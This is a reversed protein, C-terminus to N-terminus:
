RQTTSARGATWEAPEAVMEFDGTQQLDIVQKLQCGRANNEYIHLKNTANDTILYISPKNPVTCFQVCYRTQSTADPTGTQGFAISLGALIMLGVLFTAWGRHTAM